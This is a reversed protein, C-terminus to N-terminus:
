GSQAFVVILVCRNLGLDRLFLIATTMCATHAVRIPFRV